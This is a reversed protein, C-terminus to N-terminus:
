VVTWGGDVTIVQGLINNSANSALMAATEAIEEVLTYRKTLHSDIYANNNIDKGRVGDHINTVVNGPAIGNVIVNHKVMEKAFGKTICVSGWKSISYPDFGSKIGAVSCINIIKGHRNTSVFYKGEEQCMFFLGRTNTNLVKDYMNPTIQEWSASEFIGANNVFIDIFGFKSIVRKMNENINEVDSIDLVTYEFIDSSVKKLKEFNRGTIIVKAGEAKFRRAIALGIGSTGGTVLATMGALRQEPASITVNCYVVGGQRLYKRLNSLTEKLKGLKGMM